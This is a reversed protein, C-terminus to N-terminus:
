STTSEILLKFYFWAQFSFMSKKKEKNLHLQNMQM